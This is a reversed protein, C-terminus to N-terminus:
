SVGLDRDIFDFIEDDTAADLDTTADKEATSLQAILDRLHDAIDERAQPDTAVGTLAEGIRTLERRIDLVDTIGQQGDNALETHLLETIRQSNPHDFVLTAPLRLGTAKQLRNRLEMATLSDFGLDKFPRSPTIEATSGHALVQAAEQRVLGLLLARQEAETLGGLRERLGAGAEEDGPDSGPDAVDSLARAAEPIDEILPRRRAMAYGPTFLGWDMDAVTVSVEDQELVQRLARVAPVPDLLRVGRRSLQAATEGEAMGTAQWGGWSVSSGALGRARRERVLGDLFGGAAANAGNGGSGWVAAGSSFVVFADLELGATLEDLHRAGDVRASLVEGLHEGSAEVVQAYGSAGAAHFVATLPHEAPVDAIVEALAARDTVDCAVVSVDAGSERLQAVLEDAGETDPGRRSVLLLRAAGEGALWRALHGGVGGTGGTILVTGRPKFERVPVASAGLPARVLRRAYVGSSRVAVQDEGEGAALVAALGSSVREDWVAPVDVLGGWVGPLELGAVQGWAWLSSQAASVADDSGVAAAGRSLVWVPAVLGADGHAQVLRLSSVLATDEDWALLSVVGAVEGAGALEEALQARDTGAEIDLTRVEAGAATLAGTVEEVPAGAGPSVVLWVGSLRAQLSMGNARWETRYRWSDITTQARRGKRWASLAPLWTGAAELSASDVGDSTDLVQALDALDEREVADWFAADVEDTSGTDIEGGITVGELWYRQHQFAYTPLDVRRAGSGAFVVSWDVPVGAVYAEALSTLLRQVGGEERRLSGVTVVPRDATEGTEAVAVALVPHPSSEVFVGAGKEVLLRTVPEFRVRERLNTVWYRADLGATDFREGTVTSYFAVSSSQPQIEALEALLDDNLADVQASHSAYDVAIRRARVGAQECEALLADLAEVEGSVVVSSPGNVAAVGVRGEFRVLREEVQAVPLSVSGMGGRGSLKERVLRSRVAVVRAGDELSLGGAVCAAAVEGQSHGVVAAPEVGFSRWVAALSVMVAWLVPQVVDVRQWLADEADRFVVDRLSWDVFPALARECAVMSEAFVPSADWLERGMGVWQSGQGPFVFVIRGNAEASGTVVDTSPEQAAMARVKETLSAMGSGLVVARHELGARTTALSFAVDVPDLGPTREALDRLREAQGRLAGGSRASIVWPVVSTVLAPTAPGDTDPSTPAEEEAPAEEIIVHANTGSIGFSSVGARRPRDTEPWPRPETLLEVEGATWDVEPTPEDVNLTKPMLGHRLALVSKIVGAVGAAAGTHGINTKVSGLWLPRDDPRDQGYTALLAQAEIPDGLTTGTGHAEVMDVDALALGANAVAARIVRQQSPGNPASLGNSAGDQNIASGRIVALVEHGNRRADSLRELVIMGVGEGWGIGDAAAAFAKTRGDQSLGGLTDFEAFAGPTAMLGVGGTLALTCEGNRLAQAALHLAVLSSSCATDVSVAPGELGLSYSIRGSMVSGSSGTVAYGQSTPSNMLLAGYEVATGGVFVGTDSGRLSQPDIGTREVAEWSSELLLRQQPDMAMAERPSIGFFGADFDGAEHLFGARRLSGLNWRDWGRYSPFDSLGEGNEVVLEWLDEPSSVGGSYRCAMGVIALPEDTSARVVEGAPVPDADTGVLEGRVHAALQRPNPYDFVLTAPLRLGTAKQLRNRLEMATLSDFGLDKFPRDPTIEATSSHALIGAAEERVLDLLLDLQEAQGMAALEARFATGGTEEGTTDDSEEALARAAEPIDEILPRRRAMAYGPTFRGWDMDTVTLATEDQELAQRLAEVALAPDMARVGRRELQEATGDTAMGTAKWGGWSVSTAVVGRARREWALGDLFANAAAYAGNGASGWVAAGSSFLVFADLELGATLEDLHRAGLTKSAMQAHMDGPALEHVTGYSAVGATHFVATLPHEAPVDAIVQALAARDTVDCAVVTAECGLARLEEVLDSVGEADPGRRSVLLLRAAGEGALWRALHGGVGGTGGTILVTGRAKFERVPVASAGLPARVLRRAYVGSPRVAVQDEGEGAALVAALGSSVRGDWEAPVDVLGGWVGPLELGAVQGWAWLSTQVASVADDSGVAAAGRTLVWVPAVLGADGHAQVLRLSSALAADEAWALLSVVGAVEGAGALQEALAERDASGDLVRVEAGAATLAETVQEVPADSGPSVVLWVGSLSAASPVTVSRWLTRYRWSDLVAQDQRGKRWASLAPVVSEWAQQDVGDVLSAVSDIDAREVAGWFAADVPDTTGGSSQGPLMADALWYHQHQFAYTPLDVPRAGTGDFARAWDVPAGAVYAEALSTLLRQVGGEERRLSGVATVPRDATEGTEAVAVTLVPHPSSEVFVQHELEALLRTVPEFRVRERLNTVWYGADLGATDFREGTVTSYFAVSSSRPEIHALEALLEDSLADVQASHSAYDVAIRRARVGAEECEALLADLAEVEGSVVVSSPGNVAAVGVRGEFRALREEVAEVPLSVSGMGGRGSLKERVLRSRVAVVRAGDELSLGGAVCAAAVEGQSHGVVAAPEVGFSRWVAALSVMVAWLVPQVVDVRAWLADEADRFVVDRLSWDVFPALARECAVMSEAFVPSADWLERGMGVWQSGQGPFVFVVGSDVARGSVVGSVHGGGALARVGALLEERGAGLVVARQEFASRTGVLSFGVDLPSVGSDAALRDLLRSAQARLAAENRGSLVWPVVPLSVPAVPEDREEAEAAAPSAEELILHANTGSIGFSSVGARRPRDTEPWERAETLLEVAGASWDVEPTPEDVHLTKPMLGHRLALVSKIVGAVGAAAGTHGFNSKVSGLWLPREAPRDQGYTALLAQAEIPDGLRTGTGHAEVMDVDAPKLGANALATRIVRQQSPGNPASLGNSAGDQNIASGRIVALVEHGNRRADSLREVVVMGIGEGWGTGDAGAAFAKCRGDGAMGGLTDFETFAGPTAMITVGGALALDCEGNHLSQAALHLAVLSSSCATDVTVAPGELGLVYSVRGSMVSGLAGTMGYGGGAESSGMLVAPYDQPGGGVFVGTATNRLSQPDIGSKEVAEWSVELLLRQQPDMSTAERPSIGFFSADFDGAGQLFGAQDVAPAGWQEWGRDTPFASLEDRGEALLRWLSEADLVGGPYRCAMGVIALPEDNAPRSAPTVTGSGPESDVLEARLMAALREPDPHDFVLTAPLRLGTAKQLRNRLEMATLSDFGLDKFPRGPTIEATSGHALVQAAEQRVLGLLLARQEAETLGGLRERLGAGAVGTDAEDAAEGTERLAQAAEPIDEILPRRRAMAYGPTFLGWDMDAVTVSVEDQELVQRLARVAPVPDLLRVGRRSLQAATEGEAMGTAQWGGWSVSSGALGRARRERVLGDLFGGAAANAGNGGSGWVAAGSSFVVFADLELGATLEDLHRGGDVRASLVGGLHEATAEALQAYGSVGAAHFVATLPHEAPVDAIVQALAARDTVDCAVVTAECGLARLEEVLDSVGEADPGRRSVLLLRAAGEGALWRALHGGVGGTGGTILVTGRPKFERVPVASAGLPARVLRRAYVGSSRVAVQDEGEGAALVAALSSAVKEDWVAPVDVLGGWVGPLELGAVQGWAWLSSQVASVADDSGVAAAGRTLVWVPAVLGADGHAQVLRLSSALAADEAWALLSVVGAVEGAGALQEALQARDASGDLVRVEAGAAILAETVQEVPADVGDAFVLWLGSLSAVSPVTVSRWVTRYRWSDITTQTRRGTRWASLAPVVTEWAQTDVGDVLSAVSDVDAREVAGWFAADVPDTTGGGGGQGPLVVDDLWYRQHQFAYTPLDVRRAGSGAFVVSWDVPVGAVYAEALSRLLRQVGGEERRLSGVATLPRDVAEGTEAVAVTLVPHPSSEVFVGAGKEMLLRTVPEFRVRERLNTVWYRADLGATDFREGTVTSYFAVSSSRPEIHALEALLEDNLADVQASHSAYDVAIRRARVGAQECEALLADLAEVEGSVVVSSPGNVAAVGVRGEFRVLREEVQAVPLSVSGMGGRGSLKERVLRSRVAVVRAGDELSLGGAVCAAAVEGQSHGVVAAPEVGFSRWVAALSVMVAWLVPQVVDVRVWLPDEAGRFVVDRLSWDVFPALARECAVMSEAFVPSADWLERGMGVWQSGQGPFVFVVGNGVDGAARGSVAGNDDTGDAVSRLGALLDEQGTGLVVARQEFASRTGVLSFGVDQPSLGTQGALHDLLRSAQTRLAAENRGSLVWPMVQPAATAEGETREAPGAEPAQELIVHANTGSIGFSSVGVRRPQGTEPWERAETLLEVAGASWDVQPTPEDVHLTKPMIGHRLALAAKIVGSIGAAAQTHGINSKLTGLWLPRDAPRDQGYTALLAEAEIPDGLTTGTGHAEVMDVDAPTLGANALAARIVRQQSPGNPASLGNSAGDQNAASGRIVALVPNGDRLADSLRQIAIVGAGEGWGTGDASAAFAKCRGDGASGGTASFEAFISPTVLVLVGGALALDCEGTRLSKIALHLAVLSSSCATDVTVAPGELGLVYSVRGSLVSGPAGTLAYGGAGEASNMVLAGYEQPAGGIFVGTRSGKLSGPDIGARELAEWSTELLLRQQPDMAMAERPSIRFFAPDFNGADYLFAGTRATPVDWNEWGRDTPFGSMADRGESVLRWLGEADNVGGPYRCGIGVIAVPESSAATLQQNQKRLRENELLSARLADVVESMSSSM